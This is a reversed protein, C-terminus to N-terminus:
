FNKFSEEILYNQIIIKKQNENVFAFVKEAKYNTKELRDIYNGEGAQYQIKLNGKAEQLNIKFEYRDKIGAFSQWNFRMHQSGTLTCTLHIENKLESKVPQFDFIYGFFTIFFPVFKFFKM